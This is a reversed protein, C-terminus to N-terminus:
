QEVENVESETAFPTREEVKSVWFHAEKFTEWEKREYVDEAEPVATQFVVAEFTM